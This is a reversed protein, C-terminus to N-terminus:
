PEGQTGNVPELQLWGVVLDAALFEDDHLMEGDDAAAMVRPRGRRLEELAPDAAQLSLVAVLQAAESEGGSRLASLLASLRRPGELGDLLERAALWARTSFRRSDASDGLEEDPLEPGLGDLVRPDALLAELLRDMSAVRVDGIGWSGSAFTEVPTEAAGIPLRLIPILLEDLLDVSRMAAEPQFAQRAHEVFFTESAELVRNHLDRHRNLCEEVVNVLRQAREALQPDDAQDRSDRMAELMKREVEMQTSLHELIESLRAPVTDAWGARRVDLRTDAIIRRVDAMYQISRIRADRAAQEAEGFRRRSILSALKADAASHASAVDTDLAGVLVNIAENTAAVRVGDLAPEERLLAFDFPRRTPDDPTSYSGRQPRLLAENVARAAGEVEDEGAEPAWVSVEARLREMLEVPDAGTDFGMRDVVFDIAGLALDYCDLLEFIGGRAARSSQLDHLPATCLLARVRRTRSDDRLVAEAPVPEVVPLQVTARQEEATMWLVKFNPRRRVRSVTGPCGSRAVPAPRDRRADAALNPKGCCASHPGDGCTGELWVRCSPHSPSRDWKRAVCGFGDLPWIGPEVMDISPTSRLLCGLM